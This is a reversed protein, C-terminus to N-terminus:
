IGDPGSLLPKLDRAAAPLGLGSGTLYSLQYSRGGSFRFTPPEVGGRVVLESRRIYGGTITELNRWGTKLRM